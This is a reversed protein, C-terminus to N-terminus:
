ADATLELFVTELDVEAPRLEHLYLGEDALAKTIEASRSAPVAVSLQDSSDAREVTFGAATLVATARAPDAVRLAVGTPDAHNRALV